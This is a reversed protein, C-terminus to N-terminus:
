RRRARIISRKRRRWSPTHSIVEYVRNLAWGPDRLAFRGKEMVDEVADLLRRPGVAKNFPWELLEPWERAIIHEALSGSRRYATPLTLMREVVGRHCMPYVAFGFDCEAYPLVGAWCGLRQELYFMDLLQLSDAVPVTRLWDRARGLPEEYLPCTNCHEILREPPMAATETDDKYWYFGRALEGVLGKLMARGGNPLRKFMTASEWGRIEGTSFGIRFMWEELDEETASETSLVYHTLGFRRAIRTAVDCDIRGNKDPIQATFLEVKDAIDRGCALLMRSDKGATLTLRATGDRAIAAINRKVIASIESIAADPSTVNVLPQKPWHRILQWSSLDLFHNPLIRDIGYRPTLGLPYMGNTFPIGIARALHVRDPTKDDYSILNPTSAV